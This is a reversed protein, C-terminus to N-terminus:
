TPPCGIREGPWSNHWVTNWVCPLVKGEACVILADILTLKLCQLKKMKNKLALSSGLVALGDVPKKFNCCAWGAEDVRAFVTRISFSESSSSSSTSMVSSRQVSPSQAWLGGTSSTQSDLPRSNIWIWVSFGLSSCSLMPREMLKSWRLWLQLSSVPTLPCTDEECACRWAAARVVESSIVSSSSYWLKWDSLERCGLWNSSPPLSPM